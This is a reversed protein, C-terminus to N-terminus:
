DLEPNNFDGGLVLPTAAAQRERQAFANAPALLLSPRLPPIRLHGRPPVYVVAVIMEPEDNLPPHHHMPPFNTPACGHPSSHREGLPRPTCLSTQSPPPTPRTTHLHHRGRSKRLPRHLRYLRRGRNLVDVGGQEGNKEEPRRRINAQM